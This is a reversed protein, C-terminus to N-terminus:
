ARPRMPDKLAAAVAEDWSTPQHAEPELGPTGFQTSGSSGVVPKENAGRATLKAEARIAGIREAYLARYAVAEQGPGLNNEVMFDLIEDYDFLPLKELARIGSDISRAVEEQKAAEEDKAARAQLAENIKDLKRELTAIQASWPDDPDSTERAKAEELVAELEIIRQELSSTEETWSREREALEQTKRRYDAERLGSLKWEAIEDVSAFTGDSLQIRGDGMAKTETKTEVPGPQANGKAQAKTEVSASQSM